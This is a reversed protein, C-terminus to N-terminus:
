GHCADGDSRRRREPRVHELPEGCSVLDGVQEGPGVTRAAAAPPNRWRRRLVGGLGEADRDPLRLLEAVVEIGLHVRNGRDRVSLKDRAAREPPRAPEIDM